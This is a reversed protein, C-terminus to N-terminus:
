NLTTRGYCPYLAKMPLLNSFTLLSQYPLGRRSLLCLLVQISLDLPMGVRTLRTDREPPTLGDANSPDPYQQPPPVSSQIAKGIETEQVRRLDLRGM